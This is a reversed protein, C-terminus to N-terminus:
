GEMWLIGTGLVRYAPAIAPNVVKPAPNIIEVWRRNKKARDWEARVEGHGGIDHFGVMVPELSQALQWDAAVEWEHHGGDIFVLGPRRGALVSLLLSRTEGAASDGYIVTAGHGDFDPATALTVGIVEAGAQRWAYLSGGAWCGIEVVLRPNGIVELTIGLEWPDQLAGYSTVACDATIGCSPRM